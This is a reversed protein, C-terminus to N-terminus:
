KVWVEVYTNRGMIFEFFAGAIYKDDKFIRAKVLADIVSKPTNSPDLHRKDPAAPFITVWGSEYENQPLKEKALKAVLEEFARYKPELYRAKSNAKSLLRGTIAFRGIFRYGISSPYEFAIGVDGGFAWAPSPDTRAM